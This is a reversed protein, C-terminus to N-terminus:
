WEKLQLYCNSFYEFQIGYINTFNHSWIENLDLNERVLSIASCVIQLPSYDMSISDNFFISSYQQVKFNLNELNLDFSM